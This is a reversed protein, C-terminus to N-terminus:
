QHGLGIQHRQRWFEKDVGIFTAHLQGKDFSMNNLFIDPTGLTILHVQKLQLFRFIRDHLQENDLASWTTDKQTDGVTAMPNDQIIEKAFTQLSNIEWNYMKLKLTHDLYPQLSFLKSGQYDMSNITCQIVHPSFRQCMVPMWKHM